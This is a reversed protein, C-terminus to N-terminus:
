RKKENYNKVMLYYLVTMFFAISFAKLIFLYDVSRDWGGLYSVAAPVILMVLFFILFRAQLIKM